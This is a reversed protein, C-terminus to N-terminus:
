GSRSQFFAQNDAELRRTLVSLPPGHVVQHVFLAPVFKCQFRCLNDWISKLPEIRFGLFSHVRETNTISDNGELKEWDAVEDGEM